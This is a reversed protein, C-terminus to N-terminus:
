ISYKLVMSAFDRDSIQNANGGGYYRNYNLDLSWTKQYDFNIGLGLGKRDEIFNYIPAPTTGQVDHQFALQPTVNIGAILSNYELRSLLRYGWSFRTGFSLSEVGELGARSANGSRYTGPAEFRLRDAEPLGQIRNFGTEAVLTWQDAALQPGFAQTLTLQGQWTNFRRYGSIEQGPGATGLQSTGPPISGTVELASYLIEVDDVQLPENRRYSFEGAFSSENLSTNFSFAYLEIDEPYELFGTVANGNHAYASIIPRRSHYNMAYFGLETSDLLWAVKAGYQGSDSAERDSIRFATRNPTNEPVLGFGLYVFRGGAGIFDNTSFYTGTADLRSPRWEYEYFAEASLTDTLDSSAWLTGLPRFADRVEAGPIRLKPADVPNIESIGHGIFTSEGWNLAQRGLRLQANAPAFRAFVFADLLEADKGHQHEAEETLAKFPRARDMLEMDYFYTGRVFAGYNRYNLELEHTGKFVESFLQGRRFNLNGDDGNTSYAGASGHPNGQQFGDLNPKGVSAPNPQELRWSRGYSLTSDFSGTLEGAEFSVSWASTPLSLAIAGALAAFKFHQMM